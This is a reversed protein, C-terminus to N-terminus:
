RIVLLLMVLFCSIKTIKFLGTEKITRCATCIGKLCLQHCIRECTPCVICDSKKSRKKCEWCKSSKVNKLKTCLEMFTDPECYDKLFGLEVDQKWYRLDIKKVKGINIRQHEINILDDEEIM